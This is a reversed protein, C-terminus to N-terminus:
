GIGQAHEIALERANIVLKRDLSQKAVSLQLLALTAEKKNSFMGSANQYIRTPNNSLNIRV